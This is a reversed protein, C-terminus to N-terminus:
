SKWLMPRILREPLPAVANKLEQWLDDPLVADDLLRLNERLQGVTEIGIVISTINPQSYLYGVAIEALSRGSREAIDELRKRYELIESLHVPVNERPMLLLGQLFASRVFVTRNDEAASEVLSDFRHDLLNSPIQVCRAQLAEAPCATSDLSVGGQIAYGKKELISELVPLYVADAEVHFLVASLRELRLRELSRVLHREIFVGVDSPSLGTPIRPIKTVIEFRESLGLRALSDGIREESSGYDASTDISHIGAEFAEKLIRDIEEDSPMGQTNAIGYPLGFQVTGLM